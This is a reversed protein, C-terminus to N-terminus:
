LQQHMIRVSSLDGRCLLLVDDVFALHSFELSSCKQHFHFGSLLSSHKLMRSFYEMCCIFLYPLLRDGQRIGSQGKFFGYLNGNIAISFSALYVCQMVLHVFGLPLRLM